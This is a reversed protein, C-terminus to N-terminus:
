FQKLSAKLPTLLSDTETTQRNLLHDAKGSASTRRRQRRATLESTLRMTGGM